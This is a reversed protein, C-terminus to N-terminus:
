GGARRRRGLTISAAALLLVLSAPEPVAEAHTEADEWFRFAYLKDYMLELEFEVDVMGGDYYYGPGHLSHYENDSGLVDLTLPDYVELYTYWDAWWNDDPDSDGALNWTGELSLTVLTSEPQNNPDGAWEIWFLNDHQGLGAADSYSNPIDHAYSYVDQPENIDVWPNDYVYPATEFAVGAGVWEVRALDGTSVPGVYVTGDGGADWLESDAAYKQTLPPCMHKVEAEAHLLWLEPDTTNWTLRDFGGAPEVVGEVRGWSAGWADALAPSAAMLLIGSTAAIFLLCNMRRWNM